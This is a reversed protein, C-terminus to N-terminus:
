KKRAKKPKPKAWPVAHAREAWSQWMAAMRKVREPHKEALNNLETRDAEVDYLEWPGQGGQAV